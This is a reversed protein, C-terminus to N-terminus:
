RTARHRADTRRPRAAGAVVERLAARVAGRVHAPVPASRWAVCAGLAARLSSCAAGCGACGSVHKELRACAGAELEGELFRSLMRAVDPCGPARPAEPAVHPALIERLVVRARHLRSKVAREGLGLHRGVQAAPLGEVDRLVLVDRLSAPLTAIARELAERLERREAAREPGAGPDRIELAAAGNGRELSEHRAGHKRRRACTNRAVVYAWSSLSADGRFRHLSSILAALVEQMVDEADHPDRCFGRSFRYLSGSVRRTVLDLARPDGRRVAAILRREEAPDNAGRASDLARRLGNTSFTKM